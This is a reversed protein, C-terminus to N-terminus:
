EESSHCFAKHVGGECERIATTAESDAGAAEPTM